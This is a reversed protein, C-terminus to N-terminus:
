AARCWPARKRGGQAGSRAAGTAMAIALGEFTLRARDAGALGLADLEDLTRLVTGVSLGTTQALVVPDAPTDGQALRYLAHLVDLQPTTFTQM